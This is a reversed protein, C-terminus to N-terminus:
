EWNSKDDQDEVTVGLGCPGLYKGDADFYDAFYGGFDRKEFDDSAEEFTAPRDLRLMDGWLSATEPTWDKLRLAFKM